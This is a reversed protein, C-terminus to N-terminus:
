ETCLYIQIIFMKNVSVNRRTLLHITLSNNDYSASLFVLYKLFKIGNLGDLKFFYTKHFFRLNVDFNISSKINWNIM